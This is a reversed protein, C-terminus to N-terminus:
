ELILVHANEDGFVREVKEAARADFIEVEPEKEENGGWQGLMGGLHQVYTNGDYRPCYEDRIAVTHLLRFASRDFINDHIRFNRAVNMFSWGKIHAPTHKNHRQQGWGYGSTRLINGCIEINEMYSETDGGTMDLFYEISYVCNEVLNDRYVVNTMEISEGNTTIQHTIGADYCQYIYCNEVTYRDCGGYIEVANGYRTVTGRDGQPYNPDTGKYHQIVGGVWGIECNSVHLGSSCKGRASIGHCGIYRLCINDIRVDSNTDVVFGHRRAVAEISSFVAGPNGQNCRLYLDGYTGNVEPIPFDETKGNKVTPDTTMKEVSYWFIDLDGTLEASIDFVKSEDNRCVFRGEIFSPIHKYSHKEGGNFVLTGCDLIKKAYKWIHRDKDYEEWLAPDAMDEIWSYIRPKEGQGYAGYTVGPRTRVHGRFLDGRNFLVGDGPKLDAHSVKALSKWAKEPSLGDNEDSGAECVYYVVGKIELEDPANLIKEKLAQAQMDIKKMMDNANM